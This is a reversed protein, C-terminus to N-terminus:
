DQLKKSWYRMLGAVSMWLPNANNYKKLVEESIGKQIRQKEVFAEFAPSISHWDSGKEAYPRIWESWSQLLERLHALHNKVDRVEGFHTLLLASVDLQEILDLSSFWAELDIDPPPCPAEVLGGKIKVGAVDGTILQDGIQWAIHHVAHGPTHWAQIETKGIKIVSAHEVATLKEEPIPNLSGWLADMQDQYIRKASTYLRSPDMMHKAGRPHLYIQAGKEALAWAAGAHDLHIHTLFVHKLDKLRWGHEKLGRELYPLTAHPGTEFIIPGESTELLFSAISDPLGAFNLDLIYIM